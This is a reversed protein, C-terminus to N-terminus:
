KTIRISAAAYVGEKTTSYTIKVKDDQKVKDLTIAEWGADYITTTSEVLFTYEKPETGTKDVVVMESKTGKAPDALTVSKVEGTIIKKGIVTPTVKTNASTTSEQALCPLVVLGILCLVLLLSKM